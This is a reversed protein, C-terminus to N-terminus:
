NKLGGQKLCHLLFIEAHLPKNTQRCYTMARDIRNAYSDSAQQTSTIAFRDNMGWNSQWIPVCLGKRHDAAIQKFIPELSNLYNLDPRLFCVIDPAM